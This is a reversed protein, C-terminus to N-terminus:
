LWPKAFTIARSEAEALGEPIANDGLPKYEGASGTKIITVLPRYKADFVVKSKNYGTLAITAGAEIKGVYCTEFSDVELIDGDKLVPAYYNRVFLGSGDIRPASYHRPEHSLRETDSLTDLPEYSFPAQHPAWVIRRHHNYEQTYSVINNSGIVHVYVPGDDQINIVVPRSLNSAIIRLVDGGSLTFADDIDRETRIEVIHNDQVLSAPPAEIELPAAYARDIAEVRKRTSQSFRSLFRLWPTVPSPTSKSEVLEKPPIAPPNLSPRCFIDLEHTYDSSAQQWTDNIRSVCSSSNLYLRGDLGLYASVGGEETYPREYICLLHIAITEGSSLTILRKIIQPRSNADSSAFRALARQGALFNAEAIANAEARKATAKAAKSGQKEVECVAGYLVDQQMIQKAYDM